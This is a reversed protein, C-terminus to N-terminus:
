AAKRSQAAEIIERLRRKYDDPFEFEEIGRYIPAVYSDAPASPGSSNPVIFTVTNFTKGSADRVTIPKAAWLGEPLGSLQELRHMDEDSLDYLVGLTKAGPAAHLTCGARSPDSCAAFDMEFGDLSMVGVAKASPCFTRMYDSDLLTGYAFYQM